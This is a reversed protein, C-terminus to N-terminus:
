ARFYKSMSVYRCNLFVGSRASGELPVDVVAILRSVFPVADTVLLTAKPVPCTFAMTSVIFSRFM